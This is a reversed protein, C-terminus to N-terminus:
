LLFTSFDSLQSCNRGMCVTNKLYMKESLSNM